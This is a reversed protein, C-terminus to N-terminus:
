IINFITFYYIINYLLSLFGRFSLFVFCACLPVAAVAGAVGGVAVACAMRGYLALVFGLGFSLGGLSLFVRKKRKIYKEKKVPFFYLLCYFGIM